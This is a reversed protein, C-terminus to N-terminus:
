SVQHVVSAAGCPGIDRYRYGALDAVSTLRRYSTHGPTHVRVGLFMPIRIARGYTTLVHERFPVSNPTHIQKTAGAVGTGNTTLLTAGDVAYALRLHCSGSLFSTSPPGPVNKLLRQKLRKQIAPLVAVLVLAALVVFYITAAM